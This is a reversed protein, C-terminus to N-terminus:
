RRGEAVFEALESWVVHFAVRTYDQATGPRGQTRWAGAALRMAGVVVMALLKSRFKEHGAPERAHLAEALTFELNAYKLHDRALLPPTKRILEDIAYVRPYAALAVTAVLAEEVARVPTEDAPRAAVARALAEGFADQWAFVVEEKGHFYDFFSRKSVEAAQAIEDVTVVEFGKALFLEMAAEAIRERTQQRKRERPGPPAPEPVLVL